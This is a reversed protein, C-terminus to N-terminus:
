RVFVIEYRGEPLVKPLENGKYDTVRVIERTTTLEVVPITMASWFSFCLGCLVVVFTLSLLTTKM